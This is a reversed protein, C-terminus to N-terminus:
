FPRQIENTIYLNGEGWLQIGSFPYEVITPEIVTRYINYPINRQIYAINCRAHRM